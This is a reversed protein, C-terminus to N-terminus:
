TTADHHGTIKKLLHDLAQIAKTHQAHLTEPLHNAMQCFDAQNDLWEGVVSAAKTTFPANHDISVGGSVDIMSSICGRDWAVVPASASFAEFITLPQAENEYRTPFLLLDIDRFFAAKDEDYVAGRYEINPIDACSKQILALIYSDKCPGAIIFRLQPAQPHLLRCTDLFEVIGKEYTINALFGICQLQSRKTNSNSPSPFFALNSLVSIDSSSINYLAHLRDGMNQCLVIHHIKGRGFKHMLQMAPKFLNCYAFSHHHVFIHQYFFGAIFMYPLELWQGAGGSISFYLTRSRPLFSHLSFLPLMLLLYLSRLFVWIKGPYLGSAFSPALNFCSVRCRLSLLCLMKQNVSSMGHLPKPLAALFTVRNMLDKAKM